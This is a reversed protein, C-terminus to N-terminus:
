KNYVFFALLLSYAAILAGVSSTSSVNHLVVVLDALIYFGPQPRGWDM